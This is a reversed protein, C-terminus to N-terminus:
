VIGAADYGLINPGNEPEMRTRVKTDVPNISVGKVEVLLDHSGIGPTDTEFEILSDPADIPGTKTYGIARM